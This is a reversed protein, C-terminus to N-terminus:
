LCNLSCRGYSQGRTMPYHCAQSERIARQRQEICHAIQKESAQKRAEYVEKLPEISEQQWLKKWLEAVKAYEESARLDSFGSYKGAEDKKRAPHTM